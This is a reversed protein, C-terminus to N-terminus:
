SALGALLDTTHAAARGTSADIYNLLVWWTHVAVALGPVLRSSGLSERVVFAWRSGRSPPVRSDLLLTSLLGILSFLSLSLPKNVTISYLCLNLTIVCSLLYLFEGVVALESM